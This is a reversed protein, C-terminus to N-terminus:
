DSVIYKDSFLKQDKLKSAEKIITINFFYENKKTFDNSIVMEDKILNNKLISMLKNLGHWSTLSNSM